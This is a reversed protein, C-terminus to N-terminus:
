LSDIMLVKFYIGLIVSFVQELYTVLGELSVLELPVSFLHVFQPPPLAPPVWLVPM